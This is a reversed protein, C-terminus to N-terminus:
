KRQEIIAQQHTSFDEVWDQPRTHRRLLSGGRWDGTRVLYVEPGDQVAHEDFCTQGPVFRFVTLGAENRHEAFRRHSAGRIYLAQRQGLDTAEDVLTEWGHERAGCGVEACSAPRQHREPVRVSYTQYAQVPLAPPVRFLTPGPM